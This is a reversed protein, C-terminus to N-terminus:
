ITALSNNYLEVKRRIKNYKNSFNRGPITSICILNPHINIVINTLKNKKMILETLCDLSKEYNM